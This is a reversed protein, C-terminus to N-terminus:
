TNSDEKVVSSERVILKPPFVIHKVASTDCKKIVKLLLEAGRRGMETSPQRITTLSPCSYTSIPVDDFGVIAIDQPIRLGKNQTAKIVGLASRDNFTFVATPRRDKELLHTMFKYGSKLNDSSEQIWCMKRLGYKQMASLYGDLRDQADSRRRSTTLHLIDSHGLKILHETALFGGKFNDLEVSSISPHPSKHSIFVIPVKSQVLEEIMKDTFRIMGSLVLLGDVLTRRLKNLYLNERAPSNRSSILIFYYEKRELIQEVGEIIANFYPDRVDSVIVAIIGTIKTRLSRAFINPYYNLGEAIRFVKEKTEDSISIKSPKNNLVGSVTTVSVGAKKAIDKLTIM